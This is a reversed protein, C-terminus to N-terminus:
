NHAYRPYIKSGLVQKFSDIIGPNDESPAMIEQRHNILKGTINKFKDLTCIDFYNKAMFKPEPFFINQVWAISRWLPKFKKLTEKSMKAGNIQLVNVKIGYKKFEKAMKFTLIALAMKSDCYSKYVSYSINPNKEGHLNDFCIEKKPSFFHKIINSSANLIRPDSAKKLPEILLKTMLFPGILNTAFILEINDSSLRYKEGHNFYAANHILIDLKKFENKYEICFSRISDFSSLDLKKLFIKDNKSIDIIEKQVQKSKEMNRCAMIVTYGEAAFKLTASKGIGSNAGTIIVIKEKM